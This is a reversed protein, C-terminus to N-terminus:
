RAASNLHVVDGCSIISEMYPLLMIRRISDQLCTAYPCGIGIPDPLGIEERRDAFAVDQEVMGVVREIRDHLEHALGGFIRVDQRDLLRQVPSGAVRGDDRREHLRGFGAFLDRRQDLELRAEVFLVVDVPRAVQLPDAGVDDVAQRPDLHVGFDDQDHAVLGVADPAVHM